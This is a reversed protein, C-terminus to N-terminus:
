DETPHEVHDIVLVDVPEKMPELKLGLQEQVVTFVSTPGDDATMMTLKFDYSAHLGTDDQVPSELLNALTNVLTALPMNSFALQGNEQGVGSKEDAQAQKM